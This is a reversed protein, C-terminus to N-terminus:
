IFAVKFSSKLPYSFISAEANESQEGLIDLELAVTQLM